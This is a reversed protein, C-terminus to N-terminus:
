GWLVAPVTDAGDLKDSGTQGFVFANGKIEHPSLAVTWRYTGMTDFAVNVAEIVSDQNLQTEGPGLVRLPSVSEGTALINCIIGGAIGTGTKSAFTPV